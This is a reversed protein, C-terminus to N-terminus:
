PQQPPTGTRYQGPTMNEYQKFTRMFSRVNRFGVQFGIQEITIKTEKLLKKARSIRLTNLYELFGINLNEKFLRSVYSPSLNCLEALDNLSIDEQLHNNIYDIMREVIRHSHTKNFTQILNVINNLIQITNQCLDEPSLSSQLLEYYYESHHPNNPSDLDIGLEILIKLSSNVINSATSFILENSCSQESMSCFIEQCYNEVDKLSGTRLAQFLTERSKADSFFLEPVAPEKGEQYQLLRLAEMADQYSYHLDTIAHYIGGTAIKFFSYDKIYQNMLTETNRLVSEKQSTDISSLNLILAWTSQDTKFFTCPFSLKELMVSVTKSLTYQHLSQVSEPFAHCYEEYDSIQLLIAAYDETTYNEGIFSLKARIDDQTFQKGLLLSFFFDNTVAPRASQIAEEMNQYANHIFRYEEPLQENSCPAKKGSVMDVLHKLPLYLRYAIVFSFLFSLVLTLAAIRLLLRSTARYSNYFVPIPSTGVYTWGTVPSFSSLIIQPENEIDYTFAGNSKYLQNQFDKTMPVPGNSNQTYLCSGDADYVSMQMIAAEDRTSFLYNIDMNLILCGISGTSNRPINQYLTICDQQSGSSSVVSRSVIPGYLDESYLDLANQDFFTEYTYGMKDSTLILDQFNSYLYVSNVGNDATQIDNLSKMILTNRQVDEFGPDTIFSLVSQNDAM